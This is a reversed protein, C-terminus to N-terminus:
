RTTAYIWSTGSGAWVGVPVLDEGVDPWIRVPVLVDNTMGTGLNGHENWGWGWVSAHLGPGAGDASCIALVHETGCALSKVRQSNAPFEVPFPGPTGILGSADAPLERGLQGHMHSGTALIRTGGQDDSVLMYTGNWTCGLDTAREINELGQLQGKRNSGLGSVKGSAHLFVTHQSGLAHAIIRDHPDEISVVKPSMLFPTARGSPSVVNGLQGHRSTGWGVTFTVGTGNVLPGQLQVVVHHQGSVLSKVLISDKEVPTGDITLHDFDVIHFPTATQRGKGKKVGGVGLDGFDDTGMSILIDAKGECSLAIYTTEWSACIFKYHYDSLEAYRLSLDIPRFVSAMQADQPVTGLQGSSGDGCGWLEIRGEGGGVGIELLVLTHNAGSAIHIVRRTGPPLIGPPCGSFSCPIFKYSDELSGNSLQGHANSGSSLLVPM